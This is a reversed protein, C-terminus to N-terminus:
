GGIQADRQAVVRVHEIRRQGGSICAANHKGSHAVLQEVDVLVHGDHRLEGGPVLPTIRLRQEDVQAMPHFELIARRHICGCDLFAQFAMQRHLAAEASRLNVLYIM